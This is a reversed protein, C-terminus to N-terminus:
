RRIGEPTSGPMPRLEIVHARSAETSFVQVGSSMLEEGSARGLSGADVSVVDYFTTPRLAQPRVTMTPPAGPNEFAFLVTFGTSASTEQLADWAGFSTDDIQPSLLRLSADALADRLGRYM